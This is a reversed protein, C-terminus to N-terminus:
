DPLWKNEAIEAASPMESAVQEAMGKNFDMVYYRPLKVAASLCGVLRRIEKM